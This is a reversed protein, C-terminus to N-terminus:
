AREPYDAEADTSLAAELAHTPGTMVPLGGPEFVHGDPVLGPM